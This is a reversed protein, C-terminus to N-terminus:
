VLVFGRLGASHVVFIRGMSKFDFAEDCCFVLVFRGLKCGLAKTTETKGTGAPGAPAGGMRTHLAQTLTLYCKDTLPTQVLRDGVGLYEYSYPSVADAIEVYVAEKGGYQDGTRSYFRMFVLWDFDKIGSLGSNVLRATADRQYVLASIIIEIRKRRIIRAKDGAFLVMHALAALLDITIAHVSKLGSGDGKLGRLQAEVLRTWELIGALELVQTPYRDVWNTFTEEDETNRCIATFERFAECTEVRLVEQM